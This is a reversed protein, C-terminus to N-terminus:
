AARERTAGRGLLFSRRAAVPLGTAKPKERLAHLLATATAHAAAHDAFEFMPSFMSCAEFSGFQDEHAGIFAFQQTGLMRLRTAGVQADGDGDGRTLPFWVLNMFWPTVLVGMAGPPDAPTTSDVAPVFGIAEVRLAPNLLPLGAMRHRAIGTFVSELERARSIAHHKATATM